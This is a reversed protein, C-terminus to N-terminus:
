NVREKDVAFLWLASSLAGDERIGSFIQLATIVFISADRVPFALLPISQNVQNIAQGTLREYVLV